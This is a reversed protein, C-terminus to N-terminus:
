KKPPPPAIIPITPPPLKSAGGRVDGNPELDALAAPQEKMSSQKDLESTNRQKM